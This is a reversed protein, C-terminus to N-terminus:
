ELVVCHLSVCVCMIVNSASGMLNDQALMYLECSINITNEVKM